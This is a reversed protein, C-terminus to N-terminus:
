VREWQPECNHAAAHRRGRREAGRRTLAWRTGSEAMVGNAVQIRYGFRSREVDAYWHAGIDPWPAPTSETV